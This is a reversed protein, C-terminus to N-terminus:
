KRYKTWHTVTVPSPSNYIRYHVKPNWIIPPFKKVLQFGTVKELLVRSWTTLLCACKTVKDIDLNYLTWQEKTWVQISCQLFSWQGHGFWVSTTGTNRNAVCIVYPCDPSQPVISLNLVSFSIFYLYKAINYICKFSEGRLMIKDDVNVFM